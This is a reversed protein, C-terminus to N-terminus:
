KKYILDHVNKDGQVNNMQRLIGKSRWAVWKSVPVVTYAKPNPLSAIIMAAENRSLDKAHKHFYQQAAAEIGFVGKGMEITNLYVELIRRKGWILEILTTYVAEFPKRIYSWGQFLFVNKAAQQSITSAAAGKARGNKSDNDLSKSISQWDFGNHTAFRQDESAIAALKVNASIDDWDVYDRKLGYGSIWNSFQTITIPPM